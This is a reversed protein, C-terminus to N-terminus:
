HGVVCDCVDEARHTPSVDRTRDCWKQHWEERVRDGRNGGADVGLASEIGFRPGLCSRQAHAHRQMGAFRHHMVPLVV